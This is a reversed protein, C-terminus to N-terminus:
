GRCPRKRNDPLGLAPEAAWYALQTVVFGAGLCLLALLAFLLVDSVALSSMPAALSEGPLFNLVLKGPLGTAFILSIGIEILM